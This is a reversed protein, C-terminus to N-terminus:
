AEIDTDDLDDLDDLNDLSKNEDEPLVIAEAFSNNISEAEAQLEEPTKSAQYSVVAQYEPDAESVKKIYCTRKMKELTAESFVGLTAPDIAAKKMAKWTRSNAKNAKAIAGIEKMGKGIVMPGGKIYKGFVLANLGLSPLALTATATMLSANTADLVINTSALVSNAIQWNVQSRSVLNNNADVMYALLYYENNIVLTDTKYSYSGYSREYEEIENWIKTVEILYSDFDANGTRTGDWDWVYPEKEKKEKKKAAVAQFSMSAIVALMLYMFLKKM